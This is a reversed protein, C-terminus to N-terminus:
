SCSRVYVCMVGSKSSKLVSWVQPHESDTGGTKRISPNVLALERSSRRDRCECMERNDTLPLFFAIAIFDIALNGGEKAHISSEHIDASGVVRSSPSRFSESSNILLPLVILKVQMTSSAVSAAGFCIMHFCSELTLKTYSMVKLM